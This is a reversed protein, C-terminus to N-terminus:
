FGPPTGQAHCVFSPRVFSIRTNLTPNHLAATTSCHVSYVICYTAGDGVSPRFKSLAPGICAAKLGGLHIELVRTSFFTPFPYLSFKDNKTTQFFISDQVHPVFPEFFFLTWSNRPSQKKKVSSFFLTWSIRPSLKKKLGKEGM